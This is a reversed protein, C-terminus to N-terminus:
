RQAATSLWKKGRYGKAVVYIAWFHRCLERQTRHLCRDKKSRIKEHFRNLQDLYNQFIETFCIKCGGLAIWSFSASRM